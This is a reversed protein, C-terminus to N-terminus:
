WNGCEESGFEEDDQVKCYQLLSSGQGRAETFLFDARGTCQNKPRYEGGLVFTFTFDAGVSGSCPRNCVALYRKQKQTLHVYFPGFDVHYNLEEM